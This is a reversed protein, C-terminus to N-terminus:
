QSQAPIFCSIVSQTLIDEIYNMYTNVCDTIEQKMGACDWHYHKRNIVVSESDKVREGHHLCYKYACIYEKEKKGSM